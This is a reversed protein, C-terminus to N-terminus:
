VEEFAADSGIQSGETLEFVPTTTEKGFVWDNERAAILGAIMLKCILSKSAARASVKNMHTTLTDVKDSRDLQPGCTICVNAFEQLNQPVFLQESDAMTALMFSIAYETIFHAQYLAVTVTISKCTWLNQTMAMEFDRQCTKLLWVRALAWNKLIVTGFFLDVSATIVNSSRNAFEDLLGLLLRASCDGRPTQKEYAIRVLSELKAADNGVAQLTFLVINTVTEDEVDETLTVLLQTIGHEFVELSSIDTAM